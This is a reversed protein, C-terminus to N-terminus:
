KYTKSYKLFTWSSTILCPNSDLTKTALARTSMYILHPLMFFADSTESLISSRFTTAHVTTAHVAIIKPYACFSSISLAKFSKRSIGSRFTTVQPWKSHFPQLIHGYHVQPHLRSIRQSCGQVPNPIQTRPSCHDLSAYQISFNIHSHAFHGSQLLRSITECFEQVLHLTMSHLSQVIYEIIIFNHHQHPGSVRELFAWDHHQKM